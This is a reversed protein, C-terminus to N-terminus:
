INIWIFSKLFLQLIQSFLRISIIIITNPCLYWCHHFISIWFNKIWVCIKKLQILFIPFSISILFFIPPPLSFPSSPFFYLGKNSVLPFHLSHLQMAPPLFNVLWAWGMAYLSRYYSWKRYEGHGPLVMKTDTANKSAKHM